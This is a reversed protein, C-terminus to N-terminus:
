GWVKKRMGRRILRQEVEGWVDGLAKRYAKTFAAQGASYHRQYEMGSMAERRQWRNERDWYKSEAARGAAYAAQEQPDLALRPDEADAHELLWELWGWNPIAAVMKQFTAFRNSDLWFLSEECAGLHKLLPRLPLVKIKKKM